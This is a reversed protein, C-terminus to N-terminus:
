SGGLSSGGRGSIESRRWDRRGRRGNGKLGGRAAAAASWHRSQRGGRRGNRGGRGGNCGLAGSTAAVATGHWALGGGARGSSLRRQHGPRRWRVYHQQGLQVSIAVLGDESPCEAGLLMAQRCFRVFLITKCPLLTCPSCPLAEAVYVPSLLKCCYFISHWSLIVESLTQQGRPGEVCSLGERECCRDQYVSLASRHLSFWSHLTYTRKLTTLQQNVTTLNKELSQLTNGLNLQPDAQPPRIEERLPELKLAQEALQKKLRAHVMDPVTRRLATVSLLVGGLQRHLDEVRAALKKDEPEYESFTPM